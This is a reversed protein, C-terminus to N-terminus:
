AAIDNIFQALCSPPVIMSSLVRVLSSRPNFSVKRREAFKNPSASCRDERLLALLEIFFSFLFKGRWDNLPVLALFATTTRDSSDLDTGEPVGLLKTLDSDDYKATVSDLSIEVYKKIKKEVSRAALDHVRCYHLAKNALRMADNFENLRAEFLGRLDQVEQSGSSCKYEDELLEHLVESNVLLNEISYSPTCYLDPGPKHGKLHDFDKDVAYYTRSADADTNRKLMVRLALVKDKGNCVLSDWQLAPRISRSCTKYFIPDDSGEMVLVIAGPCKSRLANYWQLAVVGKDRANRMRDTLEERKTSEDTVQCAGHM